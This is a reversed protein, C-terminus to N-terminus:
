YREWGRLGVLGGWGLCAEIVGPSSAKVSVLICDAFQAGHSMGLRESFVWSTREPDPSLLPHPTLLTLWFASCSSPSATPQTADLLIVEWSRLHRGGPVRRFTADRSM